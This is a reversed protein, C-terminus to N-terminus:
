EDLIISNIKTISKTLQKIVLNLESDIGFDYCTKANNKLIQDVKMLDGIVVNLYFKKVVKCTDCEKM